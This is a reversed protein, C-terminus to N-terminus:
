SVTFSIPQATGAQAEVTYTGPELEGLDIATAHQEAIEICMVDAQGSGETLAVTFANGDQKVGVTDLQYCPEVGSWWTALIVVRRGDIQAELTEISVPQPNITGPRPVVVRPQGAGPGGPDVGGGGIVGPDPTVSGDNGGPVDTPPPNTPTAGSPSAGPASAGACGALASVLLVTVLASRVLNM